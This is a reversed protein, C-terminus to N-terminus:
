FVNKQQHLPTLFGFDPNGVGYNNIVIGYVCVKILQKPPPTNVGM